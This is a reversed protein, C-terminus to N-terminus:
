CNKCGKMVPIPKYSAKMMVSPHRFDIKSMAEQKGVEEELGKRSGKKNNDSAM